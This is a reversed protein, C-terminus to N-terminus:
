RGERKLLVGQIFHSFLNSIQFLFVPEKTDVMKLHIQTEQGGEKMEWEKTM